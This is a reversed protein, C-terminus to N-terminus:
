KIAMSDFKIPNHISDLSPFSKRTAAPLTKEPVPSRCMGDVVAGIVQHIKGVSSAETSAMRALSPLGNTKPQFARRAVSTPRAFAARGFTRALGSKFM